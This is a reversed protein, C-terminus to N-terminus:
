EEQIAELVEVVSIGGHLIWWSELVYKPHPQAKRTSCSRDLRAQQSSTHSPTGRQGKRRTQHPPTGGPVDVRRLCVELGRRREVHQLQGAQVLQVVQAVQAHRLEHPGHARGRAHLHVPLTPTVAVFGAAMDHITAAGIRLQKQRTRM